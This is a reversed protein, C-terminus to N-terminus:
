QPWYNWPNTRQKEMLVFGASSLMDTSIEGSCFLNTALNQKLSTSLGALQTKASQRHNQKQDKASLIFFTALSHFLCFFFMILLLCTQYVQYFTERAVDRYNGLNILDKLLHDFEDVNVLRLPSEM